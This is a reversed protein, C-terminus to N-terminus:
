RVTGQHATPPATWAVLKAAQLRQHSACTTGPARAHGQAARASTSCRSLVSTCASGSSGPLLPHRAVHDELVDVGKAAAPMHPRQHQVQIVRQHVRVPAAGTAPAGELAGAGLVEQAGHALEVLHKEKHQPKSHKEYHRERENINSPKSRRKDLVTRPDREQEPCHGAAAAHVNMSMTSCGCPKRCQHRVRFGAPACTTTYVLWSGVYASGM